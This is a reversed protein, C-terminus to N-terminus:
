AQFRRRIGLVGLLGSCFILLTSPIPTIVIRAEFPCGGIFDVTENESEPEVPFTGTAPIGSYSASVFVSKDGYYGSGTINFTLTGGGDKHTDNTFSEMTVLAYSGDWAQPWWPGGKYLELSGGNYTTTYHGGGNDVVSTLLAETLEWIRETGVDDGWAQLENGPQGEGGGWLIERWQTTPFDPPSSSSSWDGNMIPYLIAAFGPQILLFLMFFTILLFLAGKRM